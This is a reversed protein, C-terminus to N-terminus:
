GASPAEADPLEAPDFLILGPVLRNDASGLTRLDGGPGLVDDAPLELTVTVTGKRANASLKTAFSKLPHIYVGGSQIAALAANLRKM